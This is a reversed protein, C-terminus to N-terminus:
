LNSHTTIHLRSQLSYISGSLSNDVLESSFSPLFIPHQQIVNLPVYNFNPPFDPHSVHVISSPSHMSSTSPHPFQDTLHVHVTSPALHTSLGSPYMSYAEHTISPGLHASSSSPHPFPPLQDAPYIMSTAPHTSLSSLHMPYGHAISPAPHANSPVSPFLNTPHMDHVVLLLPGNRKLQLQQLIQAPPLPQEVTVRIQSEVLNGSQNLSFSETFKARTQCLCSWNFISFEWCLCM